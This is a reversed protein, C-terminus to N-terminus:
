QLESLYGKLESLDKIIDIGKRKFFLDKGVAVFNIKQSSAAEYDNKSDGVFLIEEKNFNYKKIIKKIHSIKSEPSGYVGKFLHKIKKELVIENIEKQPTGTSIFFKYKKYNNGLFRKAGNIYPAKIIKHKVKSEFEKSLINIKNNTCKKKLIVEEYYKFKKFRSMGGNDLHFNKVKKTVNIGYHSYMEQFSYTKINVSDLIVGDFDFILCKIM